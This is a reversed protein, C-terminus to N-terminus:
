NMWNKFATQLGLDCLAAQFPESANVIRFEFGASEAARAAALLVQLSPTSLREVDGADLTVAGLAVLSIMDDRLQRAQVLDLVQPLRHPKAHDATLDTM